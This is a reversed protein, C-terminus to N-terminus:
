FFFFYYRKKKKRKGLCAKAPPQRKARAWPLDWGVVLLREGRQCYVVTDHSRITAVQTHYPSRVVLRNIVRMSTSKVFCFSTSNPAGKCGPMDAM